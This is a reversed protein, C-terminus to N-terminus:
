LAPANYMAPVDEGTTFTLCFSYDMNNLNIIRGYEDLMQIQMKEINVPGYYERPTTVLGINSFTVASSVSSQVAVRALINKNLVSENFASFFTNNANNYDDIALYLYSAGALNLVGETIYASNNTYIGNRFGLKWGLKLPLPTSYDPAGTIDAQLDIIFNFPVAFPYSENVAVLLQSSGSTGSANENVSFYIYQLYTSTSLTQLFTNILEVADPATFNGDPIIVVTEELDSAAESGARLWFFNNGLMKSVSYFATPPFEIASLTMNVVSNVKIPLNIHFNSSQTVYYSERFKTDINLNITRNHKKVPNIWGPFYESPHTPMYIQTPVMAPEPKITAVALTPAKDALLIQKAQEIFKLTQIKVMPEVAGDSLINERLIQEKQLLDTDTYIPTLQFMEELEVKTYNNLNLDFKSM